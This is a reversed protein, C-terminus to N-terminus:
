AFRTKPCDMVPLGAAEGQSSELCTALAAGTADRAALGTFLLDMVGELERRLMVLNFCNFLQPYRFKMTACQMMEATYEYDAIPAFVGAAVGEALMRTLYTREVALRRNAFQPRESSIAQAIEFVKRSEAIVRYTEELVTRHFIRLREAPPEPRVVLAELMADEDKEHMLAIAEAIDLKSPFFRYLNGTSMSLDKAIEAMTTKQYGYHMFRAGAATLIRERTAEKEDMM